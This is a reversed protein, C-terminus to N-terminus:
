QAKPRKPLPFNAFHHNPQFHWVSECFPNKTYFAFDSEQHPLTCKVHAAFVFQRVGQHAPSLPVDLPHDVVITIVM